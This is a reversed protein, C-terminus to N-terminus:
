GPSFDFVYFLLAVKSGRLSSLRIEQDTHAPLAFDPAPAGVEPEASMLHGGDSHELCM